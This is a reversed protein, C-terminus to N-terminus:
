RWVRREQVDPWFKARCEACSDKFDIGCVYVDHVPPLRWDRTENEPCDDSDLNM